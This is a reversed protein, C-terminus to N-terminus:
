LTWETGEATFYSRTLGECTFGNKEYYHQAVLNNRATDTDFRRVGRQYLDHRLAAMCATGIRQGRLEENVYIWRLYAIATDPLFHLECGGVMRGDLLFDCAQQSGPSRNQWHLAVAPAECATLTSSYYVNEHEVTFGSDLLLRHVPAFGEFLKGHRAYCSMGFYHFFAYVRENCGAFAAHVHALLQRGAPECGPLM